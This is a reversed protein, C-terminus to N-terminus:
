PRAAIGIAKRQDAWVAPLDTLRSVGFGRALTGDVAAQVIDPALFALSLFMRASREGLGERAAIAEIGAVKGSVIQDLWRRGTAIASLLKTRAEARIPRAANGGDSSPQLVERKRRFTQPTWPITIPKTSIGRDSDQRLRIEISRSGLTIRDVLTAIREAADVSESALGTLPLAEIADLVIQELTEAAVRAVSGAEEKRGQALVCSVYYRYRVGKKIAYSPTMRHGRDDFLRGLL